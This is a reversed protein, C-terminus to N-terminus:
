IGHKSSTSDREPTTLNALNPLSQAPESFTAIITLVETGWGPKSSIAFRGGIKEAREQMDLLGFHGDNVTGANQMDFGSGDDRIRLQLQEREYNLAVVVRKAQSHKCANALAEQAIRLLNHETVAPLKAPTGSSEVAIEIGASLSLPMAMEKLATILNSNELLHSRLDWVSRRAESLSRRSM